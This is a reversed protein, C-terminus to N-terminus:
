LGVVGVRLAAQAPHSPRQHASPSTAHSGNHGCRSMIMVFHDIKAYRSRCAHTVQLEVAAADDCVDCGSCGGPPLAEGFHALVTRRRCTAKMAYAVVEGFNRAAAAADQEAAGGGAKHQLVCTASAGSYTCLVTHQLSPIAAARLCDLRKM